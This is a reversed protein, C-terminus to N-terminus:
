GKLTALALDVTDCTTFFDLFGTLQMTDKIEEPLSALVIKGDSGSVRRFLLLMMRLGASSMFDVQSMDLALKCGVRVLPLIQEQAVPCTNGDLTGEVAVVSVGGISSINVNMHNTM